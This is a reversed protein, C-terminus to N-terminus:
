NDQHNDGGDDIPKCDSETFTLKLNGVSKLYSTTYNYYTNSTVLGVIMVISSPPRM